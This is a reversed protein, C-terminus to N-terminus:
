FRLELGTAIGMQGGRHDRDARGQGTLALRFALHEGEMAFGLAYYHHFAVLPVADDHEPGRTTKAWVPVTLDTRIALFPVFWGGAYALTVGLGGGAYWADSYAAGGAAGHAMVRWPKDVVAYAVGGRWGFSDRVGLGAGRFHTEASMNVQDGVGRSLRATAHVVTPEGLAVAMGGEAAVSLHGDGLPGGVDLPLTSTPPTRTYPSCGCVLALVLSLLLNKM